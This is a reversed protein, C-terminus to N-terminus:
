SGASESRVVAVPCTAHRAATTSSRQPADDSPPSAYVHVLRLPCGRLSAERAGRAVIEDADRNGAVAVLVPSMHM